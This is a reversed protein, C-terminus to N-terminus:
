RLVNGLGNYAYVFKDDLALARRYMEEAEKM